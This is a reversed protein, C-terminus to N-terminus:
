EVLEVRHIVEDISIELLRLVRASSLHQRLHLVDGPEVLILEGGGVGKRGRRRAPSKLPVIPFGGGRQLDLRCPEGPIPKPVDFRQHM